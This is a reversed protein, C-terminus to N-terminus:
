LPIRYGFTLSAEFAAVNGTLTPCDGLPDCSSEDSFAKVRPLLWWDGRLTFGVVLRDTIIYDLGAQLGVSLGETSVTVTPDGLLSPIAVGGNTTYRDGVIVGGANLGVWGQLWRTQLPFYRGEGGLTLYSRSHSRSLGSAGGANPDSTPLPAFTGGAGFAWERTARYLVHVGVMLTADGKGVAGLPTSGGQNQTSIAESSRPLALIGGEVEAVTHSRFVFSSDTTVPTADDASARPSDCTVVALAAVLAFAPAVRM